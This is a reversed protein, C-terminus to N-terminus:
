FDLGALRLQDGVARVFHFIIRHSVAPQHQDLRWLHRRCRVQIQDEVPELFELTENGGSFLLRRLFSINGQEVNSKLTPLHDSERVGCIRGPGTESAPWWDLPLRNRPWDGGSLVRLTRGKQLNLAQAWPRSIPGAEQFLRLLRSQKPLPWIQSTPLPTAGM